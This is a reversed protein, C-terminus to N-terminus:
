FVKRVLGGTADVALTEGDKVFRTVAKLGVVCPIGLERSVIAAHCTLGGEDTLIAAAKKMAPVLNPTTATSVLVDGYEMKGMDEPLNIIKARGVAQGLCACSGKLETVGSFSQASESRTVRERVFDEAARGVLTTVTGDDNALCVHFKRIEDVASWDVAEGRLGQEIMEVPASRVQELTLGLRRSIERFLKEAHYYTRSQYDKRRPKTWVVRGAIKLIFADIGEPKLESIFAEKQRALRERKERMAALRRMPEEGRRVYDAMFGLFDKEAYAPGTFVYYVWAFRDSHEKLRVAFDPHKARIGDWSMKRVDDRWQGDSWFDAALTLLAEEQDQSFSQREPETFVSFYEPLKEAPVREKLFRRLNGEVFSFGMFDLTPLTVGYAYETEQFEAVTRWLSVLEPGSLATLDAQFINADSWANMREGNEIASDILTELFRYDQEVKAKLQEHADTWTKVDALYEFVNGRCSLGFIVPPIGVLAPNKFSFHPWLRNRFYPSNYDRAVVEWKHNLYTM